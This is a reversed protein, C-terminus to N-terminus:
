RPRRTPDFPLVNAPRRARRREDLQASLTRAVDLLGLKVADLIGRELEADTPGPAAAFRPPLAESQGDDRASESVSAASDQPITDAAADEGPKLNRRRFAYPNL